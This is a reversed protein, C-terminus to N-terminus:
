GITRFGPDLESLAGSVVEPIEVAGIPVGGMDANTVAIRYDWDYGSGDPTVTVQISVDPPLAPPIGAHGSTPAGILFMLALFASSGISSMLRM